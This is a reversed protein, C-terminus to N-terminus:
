EEDTDEILCKGQLFVDQYLHNVLKYTHNKKCGTASTGEYTQSDTKYYIIRRKKYNFMELIKKGIKMITKENSSNTCYLIIIGESNSSARPNKKVTCCKMSMIDQLKNERYLKKALMWSDNMLLKDYFLDSFTYEIGGVGEGSSKIGGFPMWDVRFATQENIFVAKAELKEYCHM